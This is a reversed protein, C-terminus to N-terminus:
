LNWQQSDSFVRIRHVELHKTLTLGKIVEEYEVESNTAKFQVRLAYQLAWGDPSILMLGVGSGNISSSGDVYLTCFSQEPTDEGMDEIKVKTPTCEIVFDVLVQAKIALGSKYPIDYEWLEVPWKVLGGLLTLKLASDSSGLLFLLQM